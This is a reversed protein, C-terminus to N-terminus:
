SVISGLQGLLEGLVMAQRGDSKLKLNSHISLQNMYLETVTPSAFHLVMPSYDM